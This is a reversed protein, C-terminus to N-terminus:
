NTSCTATLWRTVPELGTPPAKGNQLSSCSEASEPFLPADDNSPEDKNATADEKPCRSGVIQGSPKSLAAEYDKDCETLYHNEAVKQSHGIWLRILHPKFGKDELENERTVRINQFPKPWMEFGAAEVIAGFPKGLNRAPRGARQEATVLSHVVYESDEPAAQKAARLIDRLERWFPIMRYAKGYRENKSSPIRIKGEDWLLDDWKLQLAEGVRCGTWRLVAIFSSWELSPATEIVTNLIGVDIIQRRVVDAQSCVREEAFPNENIFGKKIAYKFFQKGHKVEASITAQKIKLGKRYQVYDHADAANIQNVKRDGFFKLFHKASNKFKYITHQGVDTRGAIYDGLFKRLQPASESILGVGVLKEVLEDSLADVDQQLKTDPKQGTASLSELESCIYELRRIAKKALDYGLQIRHRKGDVEVALRYYRRQGRTESHIKAM